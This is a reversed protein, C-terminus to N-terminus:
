LCKSIKSAASGAQLKMFLRIPFQFTGEANVRAESASQASGEPAALFSL